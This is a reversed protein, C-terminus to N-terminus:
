DLQVAGNRPNPGEPFVTVPVSVTGIEGTLNDRVLLRLNYTGPTLDLELTMPLGYERVHAFREPQLNCKLNRGASTAVRGEVIAAAVFELDCRRSGETTEEFELTEADVYFEAVLRSHAGPAPPTVHARFIVGTAPLPDGLANRVDEEALRAAKAAAKADAPPPAAAPLRAYYGRRHRVKLGPRNVKVEIRHFKRDWNAAEPYYALTYYTSGDAVAKATALDLDNRNTFARGGTDDAIEHMTFHSNSLARSEVSLRDGFASGALGLGRSNLMRGSTDIISVGVLGRADVPYVAVQADTLQAATRRIEESFQRPVALSDEREPVLSFPFGASVWILNKRGRYGATARAIAQLAGLTILARREQLMAIREEEFRELSDAVSPPVVIQMAEEPIANPEERGLLVSDKTRHQELAAILLKPDSTFDQLLFLGTTLALIATQQDPKLQKKLYLLMQQRAYEQDLVPTNLADLLLLTLPGRPLRYEPRNTYLNAPLPPIAPRAATREVADEFSFATIRQSKGNELLTFDDKTLGRVPQGSKDTVVVDVLVLRTEVRLVGAPAPKPPAQQALLALCGAAMLLLAPLWIRERRMM